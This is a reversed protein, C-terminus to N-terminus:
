IRQAPDLAVGYPIASATWGNTITDVLKGSTYDYGEIKPTSFNAYAIWVRHDSKSLTPENGFAQITRSAGGAYPPTWVGLVDMNTEMVLDGAKDFTMDGPSNLLTVPVPTGSGAPFELMAPPGSMPIYSVYVNNSADVGVGLVIEFSPYTLTGTPNTSGKTWVTVNGPQGSTGQANAAYVTGNSDVAVSLPFYNPDNLTTFPTTSGRKFAVVTFANTNAVWLQHHRDVVMGQPSLLGSTLQGIPAQNSGKQSDLNIYGGDYSSGYLIPGGDKAAPAIWGRQAAHRSVDGYRFVQGGTGVTHAGPGRALSSSSAQPLTGGSPAVSGAGSCGALAAAAFLACTVYRM